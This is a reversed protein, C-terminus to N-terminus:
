LNFTFDKVDTYKERLKGPSTGIYKRFVKNFYNSSPYGVMSSIEEITLKTSLLLKVSYEIRLKTLYNWPSIGIAKTFTHNFHFKSMNVFNAIDDLCLEKHLNDKMFQISSSVSSNNPKISISQCNLSRFLKMIFEYGMASTQYGDSIKNNTAAYYIEWLYKIIEEQRKFRMVAGFQEQIKTWESIAYNGILTIFIFEWKEGNESFYYCHKSPISTLFATGEDLIHHQGNLEIVGSGSLTYQFICRGSDDPRKMGDFYYESSNQIQWGLSQIQVPPSTPGKIFRYGFSKYMSDINIDLM